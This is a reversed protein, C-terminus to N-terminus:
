GHLHSGYWLNLTERNLVKQLVCLLLGDQQLVKWVLFVPVVQILLPDAIHEVSMVCNSDLSHDRLGHM